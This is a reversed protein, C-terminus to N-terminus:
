PVGNRKNFSTISEESSVGGNVVKLMNDVPSVLAGEHTIPSEDESMTLASTCGDVKSAGGLAKNEM